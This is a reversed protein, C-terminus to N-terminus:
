DSLLFPRTFCFLNLCFLLSIRLCRAQYQMVFWCVMQLVKQSERSIPVDPPLDLPKRMNAFLERQSSGRYPPVGFLMEWYICGISWLDAKYDYDHGQFIEPAMYLPTGCQTQAMSAAGLVRAFGFDALKLVADDSAESLLINAPKLDRHIVNKESLFLLGRSLQHLFRKAVPEAVRKRARIFKSLDGGPCLELVLYIYKTSNFNQFLRIVNPHLYDRMIAIENDLNEQLKPDVIKEKDIVKMAYLEGTEKRRVRYVKAFSGSGACEAFLLIFFSSLM